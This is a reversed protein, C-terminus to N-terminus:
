AAGRSALRGARYACRRNAAVHWLLFIAVPLACDDEAAFLGEYSRGTLGGSLRVARESGTAYYAVALSRLFSIRAEYTRGGCSIELEDITQGKPGAALMEEGNAVM